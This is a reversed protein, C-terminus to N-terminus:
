FSYTRKQIKTVFLNLTVHAAVFVILMPIAFCCDFLKLNKFPLILYATNMLIIIIMLPNWLSKYRPITTDKPLARIVKEFKPDNLKNYFYNRIGNVTRAYLIAEYKLSIAFWYFFLGIIALVILIYNFVTYDIFLVSSRKEFLSLLLFPVSFFLMYYRFFLALQKQSEFHANAINEYEKLLFGEFSSTNESANTDM